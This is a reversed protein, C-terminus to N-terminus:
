SLSTRTHTSLSSAHKHTHTHTRAQTSKKSPATQAAHIVCAPPWPTYPQTGGSHPACSIGARTVLPQSGWLTKHQRGPPVKNASMHQRRASVCIHVLPALQAHMRRHVRMYRLGNLSAFSSHPELSCQKHGPCVLTADVPVDTALRATNGATPQHACEPEWGLTKPGKYRSGRRRDTQKKPQM